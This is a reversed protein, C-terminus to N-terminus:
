AIGGKSAGHNTKTRCLKLLTDCDWAGPIWWNSTTVVELNAPVAGASGKASHDNPTATKSAPSEDRAPPERVCACVSSLTYGVFIFAAEKWSQYPVFPAPATNFPVRESYLEEPLGPVPDRM